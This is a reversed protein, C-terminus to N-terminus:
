QPIATRFSRCFEPAVELPELERKGESWVVSGLGSATEDPAVSFAAIGQGPTVIMAGCIRDLNM